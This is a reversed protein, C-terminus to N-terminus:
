LSCGSMGTLSLGDCANMACHCEELVVNQGLDIRLDHCASQMTCEVGGVYLTNMSAPEQLVVAIKMDECANASNCSIGELYTVAPDTIIVEIDM